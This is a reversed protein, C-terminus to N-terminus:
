EKDTKKRHEKRSDWSYERVVRVTEGDDYIDLFRMPNTTGYDCAITRTSRSKMWIPEEGPRYTNIDQNFMDYIVGESMVWQGLIYRQYFVGSYMNRYREKTDESLSPNDDMMFHIHLANKKEAEVIWEHRFWHRPNDANCNIWMKSVTVSLRALAQDGFSLVMLALWEIM